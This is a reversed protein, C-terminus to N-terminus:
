AVRAFGINGHRTSGDVTGQVHLLYSIHSTLNTSGTTFRFVGDATPSSNTGLDVIQNGQGDKIVVSLSTIDTRRGDNDEVWVAFEANVLDDSMSAGYRVFGGSGGSAQLEGMTDPTTHDAALEEWVQDAVTSPNTLPASYITTGTSENKSIEAGAGRLYFTGATISSELEIRGSIFDIAVKSAGTKNLIRVGGTYPRMALAPGDGNMDIEVLGIASTGLYCNTFTVIDSPTGAL